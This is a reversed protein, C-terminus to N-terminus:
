SIGDLILRVGQCVLEPAGDIDLVSTRSPRCQPCARFGAAEAAFESRPHRVDGIGRPNTCTLQCYFGTGIPIIKHM